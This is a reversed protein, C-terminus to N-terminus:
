ENDERKEISRRREREGERGREKGRLGNRGRVGGSARAAAVLAPSSKSREMAGERGAPVDLRLRQLVYSLLEDRHAFTFDLHAYEYERFSARGGGKRMAEYHRRVMSSPILRDRRGGVFDVPIDVLGYSGALDLPEDTGYAARNADKTGYDLLAFRDRGKIQLFHRVLGYSIGPM